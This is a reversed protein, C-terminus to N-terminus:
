KIQNWMEQTIPGKDCPCKNKDVVIQKLSEIIKKSYKLYAEENFTGKAMAAAACFANAQANKPDTKIRAKYEEAIIKYDTFGDRGRIIVANGIYSYYTGTNEPRNFHYTVFSTENIVRIRYDTGNPHVFSYINKNTTPSFPSERNVENTILNGNKFSVKCVYQGNNSSYEGEMMQIQAFSNLFTFFLVILTFPKM